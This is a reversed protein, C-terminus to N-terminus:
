FFFAMMSNSPFLFISPLQLKRDIVGQLHFVRTKRGEPYIRYNLENLFCFNTLCRDLLHKFNSQQVLCPIPSQKCHTRRIRCIFPLWIEQYDGMHKAAGGVEPPVAKMTKQFFINSLHIVLTLSPHSKSMQFHCDGM